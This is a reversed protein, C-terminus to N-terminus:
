KESNHLCTFIFLLASKAECINACFIRRFCTSNACFHRSDAYFAWVEADKKDLEELAKPLNNKSITIAHKNGSDVDKMLKNIAKTILGRISRRELKKTELLDKQAQPLKSECNTIADMTHLNTPTSFPNDNIEEEESKFESESNSDETSSLRIEEREEESPSYPEPHYAREVFEEGAALARIAATSYDGIVKSYTERLSKPIFKFEKDRCSKLTDLSASLLSISPSITVTATLGDCENRNKYLQDELDKTNEFVNDQALRRRDALHNLEQREITSLTKEWEAIKTKAQILDM